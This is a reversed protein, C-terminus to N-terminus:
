VPSLDEGDRAVATERAVHEGLDGGGVSARQIPGNEHRAFSRLVALHFSRYSPSVHAISAREARHLEPLEAWSVTPRLHHATHCNGNWYIWSLAPGTEVSRTNLRIETVRDCRMHEPLVVLNLVGGLALVLPAIWLKIMAGPALVTLTVLTGLWIVGLAADVRIRRVQRDSRVWSPRRGVITRATNAWNELVFAFGGFVMAALYSLPTRGDFAYETDDAVRTAAHHQRHFAQDTGANILLPWLLFTGAVRNAGPTAFLTGHSAYHAASAMGLAAVAQLLWALVWVVWNDVQWAIIPPAVLLAVNAALRPL